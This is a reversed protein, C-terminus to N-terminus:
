SHNVKFIFFFITKLKALTFLIIIIVTIIFNIDSKNAIIALNFNVEM